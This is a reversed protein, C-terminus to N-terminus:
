VIVEKWTKNYIIDLFCSFSILEKYDKYIEQRSEKNKFRTRIDVIQERNLLRRQIPASSKGIKENRLKNEITFVEPMIHSWTKGNWVQGFGSESIKDKFVQYAEKRSCGELFLERIFIVETETLKARGNSEGQCHGSSSGGNGGLDENYGNEYSNYYSIWYKEKENIIDIPCEEVIEFSFSELGYKRFARYLTKNYEKDIPNNYIRKHTNWRLQINYSRGIYVKNNILNTIKYIGSM